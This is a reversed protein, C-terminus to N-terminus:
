ECKRLSLVYGTLQLGEYGKDCVVESALEYLFFCGDLGKGITVSGSGGADGPGAYVFNLYSLLM